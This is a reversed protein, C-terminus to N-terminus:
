QKSNVTLQKSDERPCTKTYVQDEAYKFRTGARGTGTKMVTDVVMVTVLIPGGSSGELLFITIHRIGWNPLTPLIFETVYLQVQAVAVASGAIITM